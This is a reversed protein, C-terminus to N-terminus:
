LYRHYDNYQNYSPVALPIKSEGSKFDYTINEFYKKVLNNIQLVIEDNKM